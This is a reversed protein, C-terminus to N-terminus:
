KKRSLTIGDRIPLVITEFDHDEFITKNFLIIQQTDTDQTKVEQIVKGSWLVNDTIIIGGTNLRNKIIQYYKIYNEKDADLFVLDFKSNILPIQEIADGIIRKIRDNFVSKYFYKSQIEELEENIDITYIKGDHELGEALCLTSYGTYTGVELITKPRLLKSIISLLRGQYAGSLMRPNVVKQWTERRLEALLTPEVSTHAECYEMIHNDIFSM